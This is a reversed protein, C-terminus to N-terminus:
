RRAAWFGQSTVANGTEFPDGTFRLSGSMSNGNVTGAHHRDEDHRDFTVEGAASITGNVVARTADQGLSEDSESALSCMLEPTALSGTFTAGTQDLTLSSSSYNCQYVGSVSWISFYSWTGEVNPLQDVGITDGCAVLGCIVVSRFFIRLM